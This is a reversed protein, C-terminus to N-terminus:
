RHSSRNWEGCHGSRWEISCEGAIGKEEIYVAIALGRRDLRSKGAPWTVKGVGSGTGIAGLAAAASEPAPIAGYPPMERVIGIRVLNAPAHAGVMGAIM